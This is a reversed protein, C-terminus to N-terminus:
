FLNAEFEDYETKMIEELIRDQLGEDLNIERNRTKIIYKGLNKMKINRLKIFFIRYEQKIMFPIRKIIDEKTIDKTHNNLDIQQYESENIYTKILLILIEDEIFYGFYYKLYERLTKTLIGTNYENYPIKINNRIAKILTEVTDDRNENEECTELYEMLDILSDTIETSQFYKFIKFYECTCLEEWDDYKTVYKICSKRLVNKEENTLTEYQLKHSIKNQLM